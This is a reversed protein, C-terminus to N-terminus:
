EEGAEEEEARPWEAAKASHLHHNSSEYQISYIGGECIYWTVEITRNVVGMCKIVLLQVFHIHVCWVM